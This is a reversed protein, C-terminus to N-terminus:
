YEGQTLTIGAVATYVVSDEIVSASVVVMGGPLDALLFQGSADSTAQVITANDVEATVTVGAVPLDPRSPPGVLQGEIRHVGIGFELEDEYGLGDADAAHVLLRADTPVHQHHRDCREKLSRGSRSRKGASWWL